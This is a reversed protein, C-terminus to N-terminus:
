WTVLSPYIRKLSKPAVDQMFRYGCEVIEGYEKAVSPLGLNTEKIGITRFIHYVMYYSHILVLKGFWTKKYIDVKYSPKAQREESYAGVYGNIETRVRKVKM